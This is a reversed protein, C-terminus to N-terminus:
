RDRFIKREGGVAFMTHPTGQMGSEREFFAAAESVSAAMLMVAGEMEGLLKYARARSLLLRSCVSIAYYVPRADTAGRLATTAPLGAEGSSTEGAEAYQLPSTHSRAPLTDTRILSPFAPLALTSTHVPTPFQLDSHGRVPSFAIHPPSVRASTRTSSGAATLDDRKKTPSSSGHRQKTPSSPPARASSPSFPPSRLPQKPLRTTTLPPLDPHPGDLSSRRSDTLSPCFSSDFASLSAPYVPSDSRSSPADRWEHEHNDKCFDQWKALIAAWIKRSVYPVDPNTRLISM